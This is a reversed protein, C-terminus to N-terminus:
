KPVGLSMINKKSSWSRKGVEAIPERNMFQEYEERATHLLAQRLSSEREDPYCM